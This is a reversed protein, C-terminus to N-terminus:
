RERDMEKPSIIIVCIRINIPSTKLMGISEMVFTSSIISVTKPLLFFSASFFHIGANNQEQNKGDANHDANRDGNGEADARQRRNDKTVEPNGRCDNGLAQEATELGGGDHRNREEDQGSVQHGASSDGSPDDVKCVAQDAIDAAAHSHRQNKGACEKSGQGTRRRCCDNGDTGHQVGLHDFVAVGFGSRCTKQHNGAAQPRNNRRGDDHHEVARQCSGRNGVHERFAQHDANDDHQNENHFDDKKGVFLLPRLYM